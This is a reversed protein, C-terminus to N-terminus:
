GAGAQGVPPPRTADVSRAADSAKWNFCRHQRRALLLCGSFTLGDDFLAADEAVGLADWGELCARLDVRRPMAVHRIRKDVLTHM